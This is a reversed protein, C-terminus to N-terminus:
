HTHIVSGAFIATLLTFVYAQLFAVLLELCTMFIELVMAPLLAGVGAAKSMGGVIFIILLLCILVMHGSLMNAFLRIALVCVKIILSVVELPFILPVLWKPTGSPVFGKLFGIFGHYKLGSFVILAGSCLALAATVSINSTATKMEPIMGVLNVSLIFLFLTCFYPLMGRGEQGMNPLVMGDRIFSVYEELLTTVLRGARSTHKRTAWALTLILLISVTFITVSHTTVPLRFGNFVVGWDHDLIHHSITEAVDM